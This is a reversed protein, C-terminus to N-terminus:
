TSASDAFSRGEHELQFKAGCPCFWSDGRDNREVWAHSCDGPEAPIWDDGPLVIVCLREPGNRGGVEGIFENVWGLMDAAVRIPGEGDDGAVASRTSALHRIVYGNSVREVTVVNGALEAVAANVQGPGERLAEQDGQHLRAGRDVHSSM